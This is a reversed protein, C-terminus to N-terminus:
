TPNADDFVATGMCNRCVNEPVCEFDDSALYPM